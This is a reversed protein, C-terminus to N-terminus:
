LEPVVPCGKFEALYTNGVYGLYQIGIRSTFFGDATLMRLFSFFAIGQTLSSDTQAHKKYAILDLIQKQREASCDLYKAGFRELCTSDLWAMGGGLKLQYEPNESTLLDIFEPAGADIAGGCEDDAPIIAECLSRLMKYQHASFFKAKYTGHQDKESQVIRHTREAAEISVVSLAPGAMAGVSLSKLLARRSILRETM